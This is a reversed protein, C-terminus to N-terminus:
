KYDEFRECSRFVFKNNVWRQLKRIQHGRPLENKNYIMVYPDYDLEKLKYIRELDYEISTNFNVLVYVRLRRVDLDILPRFRKLHEYTNFECNDWAFHLMKIKIQNIMHAKKDTMLRIDLGQTFDVWAKSDILQQLLSEWDACAILNPDLLKIYKQGNYFESLDAVKVSRLGEKDGVICFKCHRPCGRTLFGYATDKIGYIEYDPYSHEIEDPLKNELGYGTGGRIVEKANICYQMDKTYSDDFVKSMYVKDYEELGNWWDVDDGQQKHWASVKMLALNPFNHSDVDILGIKM